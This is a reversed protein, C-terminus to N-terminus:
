FTLRVCTVAGATAVRVYACNDATAEVCVGGWDNCVQDGSRGIPISFSGSTLGIAGVNDTECTVTGTSSIVRISSGAACTGTVRAQVQSTNASITGTSTIPNPNLTIGTGASLSTIGGGGSIIQWTMGTATRTLAQGSSGASGGIRLFGTSPINIDGNVDLKYGPTTTGIGVNGQDVILGNPFGGTNLLLGGVKTQAQSSVNLPAPVNAGPPVASPETWASVYVAIAFCVVIVAFVIAVIKPSVQKKLM